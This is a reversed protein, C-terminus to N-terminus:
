KEGGIQRMHALTLRYVPGTERGDHVRRILPVRATRGVVAFEEGRWTFRRGVPFDAMKAAPRACAADIWRAAAESMPPGIKKALRAASPSCPESPGMDDTIIKYGWSEDPFREIKVLVVSGYTIGGAGHFAGVVFVRRGGATRFVKHIDFQASPMLADAEAEERSHFGSHWGM